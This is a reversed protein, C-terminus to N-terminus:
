KDNQVKKQPILSFSLGNGRYTGDKGVKIAELACKQSCCKGLLKVLKGVFFAM